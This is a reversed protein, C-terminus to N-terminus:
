IRKIKTYSWEMENEKYIINDIENDNIENIINVIEKIMNLNRKTNLKIKNYVIEEDYLKKLVELLERKAEEKDRIKDKVKDMEVKIMRLYANDDYIESFNEKIYNIQIRTIEKIICFKFHLKEYSEELIKETMNINNRLNELYKYIEKEMSTNNPEEKRIISKILNIKNKKAIRKGFLKEIKFILYIM